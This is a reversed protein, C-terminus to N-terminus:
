TLKKWYSHYFYVQLLVVVLLFLGAIISSTLMIGWLFSLVVSGLVALIGLFMSGLIAFAIFWQGKGRGFLQNSNQWNLLLLKQDRRYYYQATLFSTLLAALIFCAVLLWHAKLVFQALLFYVVLPPLFQVGAVLFFKQITFQRFSIPLTKIFHYNEKELSMAVGIFTTPGAFMNGFLAGTILAPGFYEWSIDSIAFRNNMQLFSPFLSLILIFSQLYTQTILNSDKLTSLHHKILTDQLTKPLKSPKYVKRHNTKSEISLVQQFYQPLVRKYGYFLLALFALLPLVLHVLTQVSFPQSVLYHLGVFGPLNPFDVFGGSQLSVTQQSQLYMLGGFSALSTGTTLLTAITTKYPSKTLLKGTLHLLTLDILNVAFLLLLFAPLVLPLLIPGGIQWYTIGLLSLCPMLFPLTMGQVALLKALFVEKPTVPLPLYLKVDKSDYYVSFFGSFGYATSLCTFVAIQMSFFGVSQSYDVGLFFASYTVALLISVLAQQMLMSRYAVFREKKKSQKKKIQSLLQPNSYLINIKVLEWINSWKMVM